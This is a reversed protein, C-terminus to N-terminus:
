AGGTRRVPRREVEGRWHEVALPTGDIVSAIYVATWQGAAFAMNVSHERCSLFLLAGDRIEIEDALLFIEGSESLNTKICWYHRGHQEPKTM